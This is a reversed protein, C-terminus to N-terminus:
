NRRLLRSFLNAPDFLGSAALYMGGLLWKRNVLHGAGRRFYYRHYYDRHLNWRMLPDTGCMRRFTDLDPWDDHKLSYRLRETQLTQLRFNSSSIGNENIRYAVLREPYAMVVHRQAIRTWLWVDESPYEAPRYGGNQLVVERHAVVSTHILFFPRRAGRYKQYEDLNGPGVDFRAVTEGQDNIRVGFSGLVKVAVNKRLFRVQREFRGPFSMDDADQRAVLPTTSLRLGENLVACLGRHSLTVVQVRPDEKALRAAIGPTPDSSGDDLILMRWDPFTQDQISRVSAELTAAANYAPLLVTILPSNSANSM